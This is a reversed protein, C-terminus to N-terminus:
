KVKGLVYRIMRTNSSDQGAFLVTYRGDKLLTNISETKNGEVVVVKVEYINRNKGKNYWTIGINVTITLLGVIFTVITQEM